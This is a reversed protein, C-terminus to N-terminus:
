QKKPRGRPRLTSELGLQEATRRVWAETGFPSERAVSTRLRQLDSASLPANVRDLWDSGRPSPEGRWLLPDGALWGPLSSWPWHEARSVLEARLANREVYRLVTALHDDDQVPFAKYRGQWVHGSTQYHRHYRQAHGTLLWRMWRGLDGDAVPRLVLHFHNPMLCYGVLDLPIRRTADAIAAVFAQYDAPKHFVAERRNGRNLAHYFVGGVSARATRPM